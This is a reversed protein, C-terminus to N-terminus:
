PHERIPETRPLDRQHRRADEGERRETLADRTVEPREECCAGAEANREPREPTCTRRPKRVRQGVLPARPREGRRRGNGPDPERDAGHERADDRISELRPRREDHQRDCGGCYRDCQESNRGSCRGVYARLRQAVDQADDPSVLEHQRADRDDDQDAEDATADVQEDRQLQLRVAHRGPLDPEQEGDGRGHVRDYARDDGTEALARGGEADAPDGREESAHRDHEHEAAGRGDGRDGEDEQAGRRPRRHVRDDVREPRPAWREASPRM